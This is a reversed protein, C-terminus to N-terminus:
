LRALGLHCPCTLTEHLKGIEHGGEGLKQTGGAVNRLGVLISESRRYKTSTINILFMTQFVVISCHIKMIYVTSLTPPLPPYLPAEGGGGGGGGVCVCVCACM